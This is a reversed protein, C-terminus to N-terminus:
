PTATAPIKFLGAPFEPNAEMKEIITEHMKVGNQSVVLRHPLTVGGVKRFDSYDTRVRVEIGKRRRLIDRRVIMFSVPDLYVFSTSTFNQTVVVELLPRGEINKEGAYDLSIKRDKGALLADDFEADNKFDEAMTGAMRTIKRTKSDAMWPDSDGDWAQVVTRGGGNVETRILDPRAAWIIFKLEGEDTRTVGSAKLTKLANVKMRGGVAEAHIRALDRSFDARVSTGLVCILLLWRFPHIM